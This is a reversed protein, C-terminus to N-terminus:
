HVRTTLTEGETRGEKGQDRKGKRRSGMECSTVTSKTTAQENTMQSGRKVMLEWLATNDKSAKCLSYQILVLQIFQHVLRGFKLFNMVISAARNAAQRTEGGFLQVKFCFFFDEGWYRGKLDRSQGSQGKKRFGSFQGTEVRVFSGKQHKITM